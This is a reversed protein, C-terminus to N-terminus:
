EPFLRFQHLLGRLLEGVKEVIESVHLLADGLDFEDLVLAVLQGM